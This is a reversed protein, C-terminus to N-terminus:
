VLVCCPVLHLVFFYYYYYYYYHENINTVEQM